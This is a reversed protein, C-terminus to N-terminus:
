NRITQLIRPQRSPNKQHVHLEGQCPRSKSMGQLAMVYLEAAGGVVACRGGNMRIVAGKGVPEGPSLEEPYGQTTVWGLGGCVRV